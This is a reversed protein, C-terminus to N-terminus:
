LEKGDITGFRSDAIEIKVMHAFMQNALEMAEQLTNTLGEHRPGGFMGSDGVEVHFKGDELQDVSAYNMSVDNEDTEQIFEMYSGWSNQPIFEDSDGDFAQDQYWHAKLKLKLESM